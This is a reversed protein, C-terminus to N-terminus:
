CFNHLQVESSVLRSIYHAYRRLKADKLNDFHHKIELRVVTPPSDALYHQKVKEDMMVIKQHTHTLPVTSTSLNNTFSSCTRLSHHLPRPHNLPLLFPRSPRHLFHESSLRKSAGRVALMRPASLALYRRLRERVPPLMM